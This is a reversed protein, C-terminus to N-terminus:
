GPGDPYVSSGITERGGCALKLSLEAAREVVAGSAKGELGVVTIPPLSAPLVEPLVRLLYALGATHDYATGATAAAESREIVVAEGECGFGSIGDVFVVREAGEIFRLLDLGAVGGDIVEVDSPLLRSRLRDAVLCGAADEAILRNGVCIIRKM